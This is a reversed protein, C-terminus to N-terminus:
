DPHARLREVDGAQVSIVAGDDKVLRLAGNAELGETTGTITEAGLQIRVRKGKAYTSRRSWEDIITEPEDVRGFWEALHRSLDQVLGDFPIARGLSEEVSTATEAIDAPFNSSRLNIGVGVVVAIGEATDTTEALIGCVKKEAVLVDNVWKIDPGLGIEALTDHVAIGAALTILPLRRTEIKPRLIMSFYLGADKESVWTRGHRGRGATQQRAVICVGEAAGTRAQKLAETNTSDITDFALLTFDM